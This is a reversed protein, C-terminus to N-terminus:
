SRITTNKLRFAAHYLRRERIYGSVGRGVAAKFLSRFHPLSFCVADAVQTDSPNDAARSEIYDLAAKIKTFYEVNDKPSMYLM